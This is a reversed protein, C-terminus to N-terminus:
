RLGRDCELYELWGDCSIVGWCLDGLWAQEEGLVEGYIVRIFVVGDCLDASWLCM